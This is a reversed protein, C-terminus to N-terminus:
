RKPARNYAMVGGLTIICGALSWGSVKNGFILLSIGISIVVKVNGLVQFPSPPPPPQASAALPSPACCLLVAFSCLLPACCLVCCLCPAPSRALQNPRPSLNPSRRAAAHRHTAACAQLTVASTYKTVLFNALNLFFAIVGSLLILGWLRLSGRGTLLPDHLAPYEFLAAYAGLPAISSRHGLSAYPHM